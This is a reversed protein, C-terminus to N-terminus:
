SRSTPISFRAAQECHQTLETLIILSVDINQPIAKPNYTDTMKKELIHPSSNRHHNDSKNTPTAPELPKEV